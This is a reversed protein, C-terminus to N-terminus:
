EFYRPDYEINAEALLARLEDVSSVTRHHEEQNLVYDTLPRLDGYAFTFAGYGVQWGFETSIIRRHTLGNM